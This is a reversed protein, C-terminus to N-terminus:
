QVCRLCAHSRHPAPLCPASAMMSVGPCGYGQITGGALGLSALKPLLEFPFEAREWYGDIVPAVEREMFSRVKARM